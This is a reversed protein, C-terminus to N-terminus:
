LNGFNSNVTTLRRFFYVQIIAIFLDSFAVLLWQVDLKLLFVQMCLFICINIRIVSTCIWVHHLFSLFDESTRKFCFPLFYLSGTSLVFSGIYKLYVASAEEVLPLILLSLIFNPNLVLFSGTVFDCVGFLINLYFIFKLNKLDKYM